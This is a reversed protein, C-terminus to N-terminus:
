DDRDLLECLVKGDFLAHSIVHGCPLVTGARVTHMAYMKGCSECLGLTEIEVPTGERNEESM